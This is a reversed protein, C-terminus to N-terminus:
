AAKEKAQRILLLNIATGMGILIWFVTSVSVVSDNFVGTTLYGIVALLIAVGCNSLLDNPPHKVYWRISSVLYMLFFIILTILSIFGTNVATQLYMNHAKDVIIHMISYSILKGVYDKQPFYLAFTDPGQGIILNDKIM